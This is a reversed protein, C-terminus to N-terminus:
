SYLWKINDQMSLKRQNWQAHYFVENGNYKKNKTYQILVDRHPFFVIYIYKKKVICFVEKKTILFILGSIWNGFIIEVVWLCKWNWDTYVHINFLLIYVFINHKWFVFNMNNLCKDSILKLFSIICVIKKSLYWNMKRLISIFIGFSLFFFGYKKFRRQSGLECASPIRIKFFSFSPQTKILNNKVTLVSYLYLTSLWHKTLSCCPSILNSEQGGSRQVGRHIHKKEEQLPYDCSCGAPDLLPGGWLAM